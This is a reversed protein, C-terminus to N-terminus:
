GEPRGVGRGWERIGWEGPYRFGLGWEGGSTGSEGGGIWIPDPCSAVSAVAPERQWWAPAGRRSRAPGEEGAQKREAAEDGDDEGLVVAGNGNRGSVTAGPTKWNNTTTAKDNTQTDHM